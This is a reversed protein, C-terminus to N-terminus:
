VDKEKVKKQGIVKFAPPDDLYDAARRLLGSDDRAARLIERNERKCLLGRAFGTEHDHDVDLRYPRVGGCIACAGGQSAFLADYDARNLGYTREVRYAHATEARKRKQCFFCIRGRKRFFKIDRNKGCETCARREVVM